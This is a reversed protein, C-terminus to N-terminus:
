DSFRPCVSLWAIIGEWFSPMYDKIGQGSVPYINDPNRVLAHIHSVMEIFFGLGM